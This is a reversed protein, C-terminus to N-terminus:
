GCILRTIIQIVILLIIPSLDLMAGGLRIGPLVNRIPRLVPLIIRDLYYMIRGVAHSGGVQVWSLVVWLFVVLTYLNLLSCILAM